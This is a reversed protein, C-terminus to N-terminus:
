RDTQKPDAVAQVKLKCDRHSWLHGDQFGFAFTTDKMVAGHAGVSAIGSVVSHPKVLTRNEPMLGFVMTFDPDALLSYDRSGVLFEGEDFVLSGGDFRPLKHHDISVGSQHGPLFDGFGYTTGAMNQWKLVRSLENKEVAGLSLTDPDAVYFGMLKSEDSPSLKLKDLYAGYSGLPSCTPVPASLNGNGLCTLAASTDPIMEYGKDCTFTVTTGPGVNLGPEVVGHALPEVTCNTPAPAGPVSHAIVSYWKKDVFRVNDVRISRDGVLAQGAPVRFSNDPAERPSFSYHDMADVAFTSPLRFVLSSGNAQYEGLYEKKPPLPQAEPPRGGPPPVAEKKLILFVDYVVDEEISPSYAHLMHDAPSWTFNKTRYVSSGVEFEVAMIRDAKSWLHMPLELSVEGPAGTAQLNESKEEKQRRIVLFMEYEVDQRIRPSKVLLTHDDPNWAFNESAFAETAEEVEVKLIDDVLKWLHQPVPMIIYGENGVARVPESRRTPGSRVTFSAEYAKGAQIAPSYVTAINTADDIVFQDSWSQERGDSLQVSVINPKERLVSEPLPVELRGDQGAIAQVSESQREAEEEAESERMLVSCDYKVGDLIDPSRVVLEHSDYDPTFDTSSFASTGDKIEVEVIDDVRAWLPKTLPLFLKGKHATVTGADKKTTHTGGAPTDDKHPHHPRGGAPPRPTTTPGPSVGKQLNVDIDYLGPGINDDRLTAEYLGSQLERYTCASSMVTIGRDNTGVPTVTFSKVQPPTVGESLRTTLEGDALTMATGLDHKNEEGILEDVQKQLNDLESDAAGIAKDVDQNKLFSLMLSSVIRMVEPSDDRLPRKWVAILRIDGVFGQLPDKESPEPAEMTRRGVLLNVPLRQKSLEQGGYSPFDREGTIDVVTESSAGTRDAYIYIGAPEGTEHDSTANAAKAADPEALHVGFLCWEGNICSDPIQTSDARLSKTGEPAEEWVGFVQFPNQKTQDSPPDVGFRIGKVRQGPTALNVLTKSRSPGATTQAEPQSRFGVFVTAGRKGVVNLATSLLGEQGTFTVLSQNGTITFTPCEGAQRPDSCDGPAALSAFGGCGWNHWTQVYRKGEPGDVIDLHEEDAVYVGMLGQTVLPPLVGTWPNLQKAPACFPIGEGGATFEGKETCALTGGSPEFSGKCCLAAEDGAVFGESSHPGAIRYFFGDPVVPPDCKARCSPYYQSSVPPMWM